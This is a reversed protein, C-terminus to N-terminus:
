GDVVSCPTLGIDWCVTIKLIWRKLFIGKGDMYFVNNHYFQNRTEFMSNARLLNPMVFELVRVEQPM